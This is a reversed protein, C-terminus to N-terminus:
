NMKEQTRKLHFKIIKLIEERENFSM